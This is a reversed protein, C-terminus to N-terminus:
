CGLEFSTLATNIMEGCAVRAARRSKGTPTSVGGVMKNANKGPLQGLRNPNLGGRGDDIQFALM